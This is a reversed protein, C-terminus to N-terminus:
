EDFLQSDLALGREGPKMFSWTQAIDIAKGYYFVAAALDGDQLAQRGGAAMTEPSGFFRSKGEDFRTHGNILWTQDDVSEDISLKRKGFLGM